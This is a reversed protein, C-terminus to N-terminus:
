IIRAVEAGEAIAEQIGRPEVCDGIAYVHEMKGKIEQFLSNEPKAGIAVIVQDGDLYEEIGEHDIRVKGKEFGKFHAKSIIRVGNKELRKQIVKKTSLELKSGIDSRRLLITVEHGREALFDATGSGVSGGGIIVVRKGMEIEEGLVHHAFYVPGGMKEDELFRIPVSGTALVTVEPHFDVIFPVNVAQDLLVKVRLKMLQRTLYETLHQIEERGPPRAALILQGGLEGRKECLTVDHGRLAAVRATEMGAPGGGVILIKKHQHSPEIRYKKEKGIEPNISCHVAFYKTRDRGRCGQNCGICPRIDATRGEKVKTLFESDALLSRGLNILDAKGEELVQVALAPDNIRGVAGVPINVYRKLGEALPVYCGRPSFMPPVPFHDSSNPDGATAHIADLGAEELRKAMLGTESLTLGGPIFQDITLKCMILYDRGVKQRCRRLIELAFRVRNELSGGYSDTRHNTLPSLFQTILYGHSYHLDVGDIGAEKARKAAEAFAEILKEIEEMSLVQPTEHTVQSPVPSCSVPQMGTISSKALSGAHHLQLAVKAGAEHIASALQKLGPICDERDVCLEHAINKGVPSDICACEVIILGVNNRAREVYYDILQETAFGEQTAFNTAMPAMVIRNKLLLNGVQIPEFLKKFGRM